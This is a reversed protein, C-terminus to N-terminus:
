QWNVLSRINCYQGGGHFRVGFVQFFQQVADGLTVSDMQGVMLEDFWEELCDSFHLKAGPYESCGMGGRFRGSKCHCCYGAHTLFSVLSGAIPPCGYFEFSFQSSPTHAVRYPNGIVLHMLFDLQSGESMVWCWVEFFPISGDLPWREYGLRPVSERGVWTADLWMLHLYNRACLMFSLFCHQLREVLAANYQVGAPSHYCPWYKDALHLPFVGSRGCVLLFRMLVSAFDMVQPHLCGGDDTSSWIGVFWDLLAAVGGMVWGLFGEMSQEIPVELLLFTRCFIWWNGAAIGWILVLFGQFISSGSTLPIWTFWADLTITGNTITLGVMAIGLGQVLFDGEEAVVLFGNKGTCLVAVCVADDRDSALQALSAGELWGERGARFEAALSPGRAVCELVPGNDGSSLSMTFSPLSFFVLLGGQLFLVSCSSVFLM